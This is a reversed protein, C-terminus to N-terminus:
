SHRQARACVGYSTSIRTIKTQVVEGILYALIVQTEVGEGGTDRWFYQNLLGSQYSTKFLTKEDCQTLAVHNTVKPCLM